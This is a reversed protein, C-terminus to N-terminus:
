LSTPLAPGEEDSDSDSNNNGNGNGNGTNNKNNSNSNNDEDDKKTGHIMIKEPTGTKHENKKTNTIQNKVQEQELKKKMMELFSGDNPISSTSREFTDNEHITKKNNNNDNDDDNIKNTKQNEEQKEQEQEKNQQQHQQQKSVPIYNFEEDDENDGDGDEETLSSTQIIGAALLHKKRTKADKERQRKRKNKSAKTEKVLQNHAILTQFTTEESILQLDEDIKKWRATERARAHRFVHFEGSGAGSSSGYPNVIKEVQLKGDSKSSDNKTTGSGSGSGTGSPDGNGKAQDYTIARNNSHDDGFGQVKTFRGM